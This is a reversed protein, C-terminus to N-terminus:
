DGSKKSPARRTRQRRVVKGKGGGNNHDDSDDMDGRDPVISEGAGQNKSKSRHSPIPIPRDSMSDRESIAIEIEIRSAVKRLEHISEQLQERVDSSKKNDNWTDYCQLCSESSEKLRQQVDSM